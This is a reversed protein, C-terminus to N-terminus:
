TKGVGVTKEGPTYGGVDALEFITEVITIFRVNNARAVTDKTNSKTIM